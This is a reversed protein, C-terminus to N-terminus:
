HQNKWIENEEEPEFLTYLDEWLMLDFGEPRTDKYREKVLMYTESSVYSKWDVIPYKISLSDVDIAVDDRPVLDLYIKLDEKEDDEEMKQKKSTEKSVTDRTRKKALSKKRKGESKNSSHKEIQEPKVDEEDKEIEIKQTEAPKKQSKRKLM